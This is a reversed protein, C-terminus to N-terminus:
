KGLFEIRSQSWFKRQILEIVETDFHKNYSVQGTDTLTIWTTVPQRLSVDGLRIDGEGILTHSSRDTGYIEFSLSKQSQERPNLTFLFREKYSPSSADRYVRTQASATKEPLLVVRVYTDVPTEDNSPAVLDKAELVNVILDSCESSSKIFATSILANQLRNQRQLEEKRTANCLLCLTLIVTCVIKTLSVQM